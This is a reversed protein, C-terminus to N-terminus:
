IAHDKLQAHLHDLVVQVHSDRPHLTLFGDVLEGVRLPDWPGFRALFARIVPPDLVAPDLRAALADFVAADAEARRRAAAEALMQPTPEVFSEARRKRVLHGLWDATIPPSAPPSKPAAPGPGPLPRRHRNVVFPPVREVLKGDSWAEVLALNEPDYRVDIRRKALAPGVQYETGFLSFVGAKDPTRPETWLFAQRIADEDAFRVDAIRRRWRDRPPEGTEGHAKANYADAWALWAENLADLTTIRAAPVEALFASTILRNFAEIKGHGM